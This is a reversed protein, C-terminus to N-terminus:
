TPKPLSDLHKHARVRSIEQYFLKIENQMEDPVRYYYKNIGCCVVIIKREEKTIWKKYAKVESKNTLDPREFLPKIIITDDLFGRVMNARQETNESLKLITFMDELSWHVQEIDPDSSLLHITDIQTALEDVKHDFNKCVDAYSKYRKSQIFPNITVVYEGCKM